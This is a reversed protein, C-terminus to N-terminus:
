AFTRGGDITIIEGNIYAGLSSGLFAVMYAVEEPECLRGLPVQDIKDKLDIKKRNELLETKVLSIALANSRVGYPGYEKAMNRTLGLLASKSAAYHAGGGGGTFMSTSSINIISGGKEKMLPVGYKCCYYAGFYNTKFIHNAEEIEIAEISKELLVGANNVLIDLSGFKNKIYAMMKEVEDPNSVDCQVIEPNNGLNEALAIAMEENKNYNIIVRGGASDLVKSCAKGIGRSGGTVLAVKKSLDINLM